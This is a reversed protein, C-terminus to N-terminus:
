WLVAGTRIAVGVVLLAVGLLTVAVVHYALFRLTSADLRPVLRLRAHVALAVTAGLLVLKVLVLRAPPTSPFFWGSVHPAWHHALWLGTVVQLLLASIGLREFGSEFARIIAPDGARLARPLVSLSLVLHGGVWVTAGLLHFTILLRYTV